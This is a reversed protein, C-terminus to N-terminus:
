VVLILEDTLGSCILLLLPGPFGFPNVTLVPRVVKRLWPRGVGDFDGCENREDKRRGDLPPSRTGWEGFRLLWPWSFSEEPAVDGAGRGESAVGRGEGVL